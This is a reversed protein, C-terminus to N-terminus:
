ISKYSKTYKKLLSGGERGPFFVITLAVNCHFSSSYYLTWVEWKNIKHVWVVKWNIHCRQGSRWTGPKRARWPTQRSRRRRTRWSSAQSCIRGTESSKAQGRLNGNQKSSKVCGVCFDNFKWVLVIFYFYFCICSTAFHGFRGFITNNGCIFWGLFPKFIIWFNGAKPIKGAKCFDWKRIAHCFYVRFPNQITHARFSPYPHESKTSGKHNALAASRLSIAKFFYTLTSSSM